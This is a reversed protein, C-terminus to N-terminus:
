QGTVAKAYLEPEAKSVQDYADYYSINKEAALAKAKKDLEANAESKGVPDTGGEQTGVTELSKGLRANQAKLAKIAEEREKEDRIGEVQKLIAARTAVTGPFNALDTEARKRIDADATDAMMKILKKRDADRDKAMQVLRADDNKRYESGDEATYIVPNADTRNKEFKEVESKRDEASKALFAAKAADDLTSHFSKEVDTLAALATSSELKKTLEAVQDKQKQLEELAQKLDMTTEKSKGVDDAAERAHQKLLDALRGETPLIDEAGIQEAAKAILAALAIATEDSPTKDFRKIFSGLRAKTMEEIDHDHDDAEGIEISGDDRMIWPHSHDDQWSTMGARLQRMEYDQFEILHAHGDVSTTMAAAKGVHDSGARKMIMVRAGVQAPRDVLSIENLSFKIMRRRKAM